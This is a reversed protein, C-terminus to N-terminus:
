VTLLRLRVAHHVLSVVDASTPPFANDTTTISYSPSFCDHGGGGVLDSRVRSASADLLAQYRAFHLRLLM